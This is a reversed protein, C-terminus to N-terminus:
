PKLKDTVKMLESGFKTLPHSQGFGPWEHDQPVCKPSSPNYAVKFVEAIGSQLKKAEEETLTVIVENNKHEINM